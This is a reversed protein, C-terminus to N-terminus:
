CSSENRVLLGRKMLWVPVLTDVLELEFTVQAGDGFFLDAATVGVETHEVGVPDVLVGGHFVVFDDEDVGAVGLDAVVGADVPDDVGYVLVAFHTPESGSSALSTTEALTSM